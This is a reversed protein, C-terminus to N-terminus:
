GGSSAALGAMIIPLQTCYTFQSHGKYSLGINAPSGRSRDIPRVGIGKCMCVYTSSLKAVVSALLLLLVEFLFSGAMMMMMM